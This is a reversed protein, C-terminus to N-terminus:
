HSWAATTWSGAPLTRRLLHSRDAWGEPEDSRRARLLEFAALLAAVDDPGPNGRVVTLTEQTPM